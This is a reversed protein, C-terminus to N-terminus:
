VVSHSTVKGLQGLLLALPHAPGVPLREVLGGVLAVCCLPERGEDGLEFSRAIRRGRSAEGVTEVREDDMQAVRQAM